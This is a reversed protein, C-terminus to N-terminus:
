RISIQYLKIKNNLTTANLKLLKAAKVQSGESNRLARQILFIEYNRVLAYFDIASESVSDVPYALVQAAVSCLDEAASRIATALISLNEIRAGLSQNSHDPVEPDISKELETLEQM